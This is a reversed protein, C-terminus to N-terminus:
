DETYKGAKARFRVCRKGECDARSTCTEGAKPGSRCVGPRSASAERELVIPGVGNKMRDRFEFLGPGCEETSACQTDTTCATGTAAGTSSSVCTAGAVCRGAQGDGCDSTRTCPAGDREGGRCTFYAKQGGDTCTGKPCEKSREPDCAQGARPGGKCTHRWPRRRYFWLVSEPEDATGRLTLERPRASEKRQVPEFLPQRAWRRGEETFSALYSANPIDIVHQGGRRRREVTSAKLNRNAKRRRGRQDVSEDRRDKLATGWRMPLAVNGAVDVAMLIASADDRCPPEGDSEGCVRQYDNSTPLATFAPFEASQSARDTKCANEGSRKAFLDDVCFFRSPSSPLDSCRKTQLACPLETSAATVAIAVPGTLGRGDGGPAALSDTNPFRFRVRGTSENVVLRSDGATLCLPKKGDCRLKECSSGGGLVLIHEVARGPPKFFLSVAVDEATVPEDDDADGLKPSGCSPSLEVDDTAGAGSRAFPRSVSGVAGRFTESTPPIANCAANATPAAITTLLLAATLCRADIM